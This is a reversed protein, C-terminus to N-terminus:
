ARNGNLSGASAAHSGTTTSRGNGAALELKHRDKIYLDSGKFEILGRERLDRLTRTVTERTTGIMEAIEEHSFTVKVHVSGNNSVAKKSWDAFLKILKDAVCTSLGISRIQAHATKYQRSLQQIANMGADANQYLFRNFNASSIFNVQCPEIAVATTDHAFNSVAASLGLIEGPEAISLILAKGNPSHATLKARGRCLIFVGESPQGEVFLSAGKPYTNAIKIANFSQLTATSLDCFFNSNNVNCDICKAQKPFDNFPKMYKDPKRDVFIAIGIGDM